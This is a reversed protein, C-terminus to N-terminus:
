EFISKFRNVVGYLARKCFYAFRYHLKRISYEVIRLEMRENPRVIDSDAVRLEKDDKLELLIQTPNFDRNTIEVIGLIGIRGLRKWVKLTPQNVWPYADTIPYQSTDENESPYYMPRPPALFRSPFLFNGLGWFVPHGKIETVPQVRHQHGGVIIDAGSNICKRAVDLMSPTPWFSHEIGWHIMIIVYDTIEKLHKIQNIYKGDKISNMGPCSDTAIPVYGVTEDRFDCIGIIGISKGKVTLIVPANAEKANMGAGCHAIGLKDLQTITNKLGEAGLDFAHNNALSVCDVRLESLKKLDSNPAYIVDQKLGMKVPDFTPTDGIACELTGIRLDLGDFIQQLEDQVRLTRNHLVGGPMIDGVFGLKIEM